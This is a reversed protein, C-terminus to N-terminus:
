CASGIMPIFAASGNTKTIASKTTTWGVCSSWRPSFIVRKALVDWDWIAAEAGAVVLEYREQRDRLDLEARKRETIDATAGLMRNPAGSDDRLVTAHTYIWILRGDPRVVRFELEYPADTELTRRIAAKVYERDDPHILEAFADVSARFTTQDVGHIGYLTDSWTLTNASIDWDWIGLKGASTALRFRQESAHLAEEAQKRETIDIGTSQAEVWRGGNDFKLARNTWLHWRYGETTAFRNEIRVQPSEAHPTCADGGSGSPGPSRHIGL